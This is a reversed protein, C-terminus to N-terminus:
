KGLRKELKKTMDDTLRLVKFLEYINEELNINFNIQRGDFEAPNRGSLQVGLLMKGSPQFDTTVRLRDYSFNELLRMTMAVQENGSAIAAAKSNTFRITGAEISELSGDSISLGESDLVLPIEGGITGTGQVGQKAYLALIEDLKLNSVRVLLTNGAFPWDMTAPEALSLTGSFMRASFNDVSWHSSSLGQSPKLRVQSAIDTVAVGASIQGARIQFPATSRWQSAKAVNGKAVGGRVEVNEFAIGEALGTINTADIDAKFGFALSTDQNDSKKPTGTVSFTLKAKGSVLGIEGEYLGLRDIEAAIVALRDFHANGEAAMTEGTAAIKVTGALQWDDVGFDGSAALSDGQRSLAMMLRLPPLRKDAYPAQVVGSLQAQTKQAIRLNNVALVAILAQSSEGVTANVAIAPSEFSEFRWPETDFFRIQGPATMDISAHFPVSGRWGLGTAFEGFVATNLQSEIVVPADMTLSQEGSASLLRLAFSADASESGLADLQPLNQGLVRGAVEIEGNVQRWWSKHSLAVELPIDVSGQVDATVTILPQKDGDADGNGALVPLIDLKTSLLPAMNAHDIDAQFLLKYSDAGASLPKELSLNGQLFQGGEDAIFIALAPLWAIAPSHAAGVAAGPVAIRVDPLLGGEDRVHFYGRFDRAANAFSLEEANVIAGGDQWKIALSIHDIAVDEVPVKLENLTQFLAHLNLPETAAKNTDGRSTVTANVGDVTLLRIEGDLLTRWHYGAQLAEIHVEYQWNDYHGSVTLATTGAGTLGWYPQGLSFTDVGYAALEARIRNELLSPIKRSLAAIGAVVLLGILLVVLWSKKTIM